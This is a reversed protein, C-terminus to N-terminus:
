VGYRMNTTNLARRIDTVNVSTDKRNIAGVVANGVSVLTNVVIENASALSNAMQDANYVGTRGGIQGVFEAGNEGAIFMTGQTPFGGNAMLTPDFQRGGSGVVNYGGMGSNNVSASQTQTNASNMKGLFSDISANVSSDGAIWRIIVKGIAGLGSFVAELMGALLRLLGLGVAKWDISQFMTILANGIDTGLKKWDVAGLWDAISNFLGSFYDGIAKGVNAWNMGQIIGILIDVIKFRWNVWISAIKTWDLQLNSIFESIKVGINRFSFEQLLTHVLKIAANLKDGLWKAIDKANINEIMDNLYEALLEGIAEWDSNKIAEQLAKTFSTDKLSLEVQEFMKSYDMSAGSGSSKPANLVNLDDFGLLQNKLEKASGAAQEMYEAPYKLAKIWSSAGTITAIFRNVINILEVFQDILHDLIPALYNVLPAAMAGLSNKLYLASTAMMDMSRAFQNGTVVAWQYANQIGEQFGQVIEKLAARILRYTAIRKLQNFFIGFNKASALVSKAMQKMPTISLDLTTKMFQWGNTATDKLADKLFGLCSATSEITKDAGDNRRGEEVGESYAKGAEKGAKYASSKDTKVKGILELVASQVVIDNAM